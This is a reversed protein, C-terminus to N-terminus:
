KLTNQPSFKATSGCYKLLECALHAGISMGSDLITVKPIGTRTFIEPLVDCTAKAIPSRLAVAEPWSASYHVISLIFWMGFSTTPELPGICDM